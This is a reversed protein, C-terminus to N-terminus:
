DEALCALYTAWAAAFCAMKKRPNAISKCTQNIINDRLAACNKEKKPDTACMLGRSGSSGGLGGLNGFGDLISEGTPDTWRLPNNVVYVYPNLELPPLTSNALTLDAIGGLSVLQDRFQPLHRVARLTSRRQVHEAISVPDATISRGLRPDWYRAGGYFLGSEGDAYQGPFRLNVVTRSGDGDPDPNPPLAGFAEAEWRWVTRQAPDTALRPTGLHDTHLYVWSEGTTKTMQAIPRDEAYVYVRIPTGNPKTEAILNGNLDYHYVTTTNTAKRTRQGLHNYTYRALTTAGAKLTRLRGAANYSLTIKGNLLSTLNGAPDLVPTETFPGVTVRQLRNSDPAYALTANLTNVSASVRNGNPDYTFALNTQSKMESTLRDLADYGYTSVAPLSQQQTLNGNPDYTNVRTDASGLSQYTLNGRPDYQRVENLGNGDLQSLVLGDARYTRNTILTQASGNVTTNISQIRGLSDRTYTVVRNDPYTISVVRNGADYTYRTTYTIGLETKTQQTLTM